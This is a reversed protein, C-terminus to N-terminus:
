RERGGDTALGITVRAPLDVVFAPDVTDALFTRWQLLYRGRLPGLVHQDRNPAVWGVPIADLFAYRLFDSGNYLLLGERPAGPPPAGALDTPRLRFAALEETTLFLGGSDPPLSAPAFTGGPPPVLLQGSSFEVREAVDHVEFAVSGGQPWEYQARLPVEDASCPAASPDIAIIESLFRCFLLAGDGANAIKAQELILKGTRTTLEWKHTAFGARRVGDNRGSSQARVLPVADIRREAFLTRVAGPPLARYQTGNPWVLLHGYRDARARIETGEALPLGRSDFIVRMRGASALDITMRPATAKRAAEIGAANVEPTKPPAPTDAYRWEGELTVGQVERVTLPDDDPAQDARLPVPIARGGDASLARGLSEASGGSSKIPAPLHPTEAAPQAVSSLPAPLISANPSPTANELTEAPARDCGALFFLAALARGKM